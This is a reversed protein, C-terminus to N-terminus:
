HSGIQDDLNEKPAVDLKDMSYAKYKVSISKDNSVYNTVIETNEDNVTLTTIWQIFKNNEPIDILESMGLIHFCREKNVILKINLEIV